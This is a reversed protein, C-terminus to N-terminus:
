TWIMHNNSKNCISKSIWSSYIWPFLSGRGNVRALGKIKHAFTHTCPHRGPNKGLNKPCFKDFVFDMTGEKEFM